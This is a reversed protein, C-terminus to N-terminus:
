LFWIPSPDDKKQRAEEDKAKPPPEALSHCTSANIITAPRVSHFDTGSKSYLTQFYADKLLNEM